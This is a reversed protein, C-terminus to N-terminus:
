IELPSLMVPVALVVMSQRRCAYNFFISFTPTLHRFMFM